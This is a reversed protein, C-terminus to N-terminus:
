WLAIYLLPLFVAAVVAGFSLTGILNHLRRSSM